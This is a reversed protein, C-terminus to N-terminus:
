SYQDFLVSVSELAENITDVWHIDTQNSRHYIGYKSTRRDKKIGINRDALRDALQIWKVDTMDPGKTSFSTMNM